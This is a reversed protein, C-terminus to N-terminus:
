EGPRTAGAIEALLEDIAQVTNNHKSSWPLQKLKELLQRAENRRNLTQYTVALDFEVFPNQPFYALGKELLAAAKEFDNGAVAQEALELYALAYGPDQEAARSILALTAHLDKHRMRRLALGYLVAPDEPAVQVAQEYLQNVKSEIFFNITYLAESHLTWHPPMKEELLQPKELLAAFRNTLFRTELAIEGEETSYSLTVGNVEINLAKIQKGTQYLLPYLPTKIESKYLGKFYSLDVHLVAPGSLPKLASAHVAKFPVGRLSGSFVGDKLTLRQSEAETLFGIEVVQRRFSELDLQDAATNSPFVWILKSFLGNDLAASVAQKSILAPNVRLLSGRAVFDEGSGSDVLQAVDQKQKDALPSLFPDGSFLLLTPRSGGAADRWYPLAESPLEVRRPTIADTFLKQLPSPASVETSQPPSIQTPKAETNKYIGTLCCFVLLLILKKM